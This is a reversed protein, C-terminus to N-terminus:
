EEKKLRLVSERGDKVLIVKDAAVKQVVYGGFVKGQELVTGNIIALGGNEDVIVGELVMEAVAFDTDYAVVAGGATVLPWFPDRQAHDDYVFGADARLTDEKRVDGKQASAPLGAAGALLVACLVSGIASSKRM